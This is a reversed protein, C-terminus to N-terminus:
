MKMVPSSGMAPGAAKSAGTSRDPHVRQGPNIGMPETLVWDGTELDGKVAMVQSRPSSALSEVKVQRVKNNAGAVLVVRDDGMAMVATKPVVLASKTQSVAVYVDAWQGIQLEAPPLPFAIEVTMEEAAPDAQPRVRYVRGPIQEKARGRLTVTATQGARVDGAFRQDLYAEVLILSPDAVRVVAEGSVISDGARKPRDTVIGSVYTFIQTQSLNFQQLRVAAEAAAIESHAAQVRAGAAAIQAHAAGIEAQASGVASEAARQREQYQDAEEQSVAGTALLHMEREWARGAQYQTARREQEQARASRETAGASQEMARAAQEAMRAAQLRDQAGQLVQRVDTDELTAVVQGAHVFDGEDVLMREIRGPIKAGVAALVDVNVTGTGQIEGTYDQQRVQTVLVTPPRLLKYWILFLALVVPLGYLLVKGAKKIGSHKDLVEAKEPKDSKKSQDPKENVKAAAPQDTAGAKKPEEIVEEPPQKMSAM